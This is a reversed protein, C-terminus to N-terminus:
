PYVMLRIIRAFWIILDQRAPQTRVVPNYPTDERFKASDELELAGFVEDTSVHHFRKIKQKLAQDLLVQTGIVNTMAFVAPGKISRDVHTEAAFHVIIDVGNLAKEVAAVDCIDGQIFSYNPNDVVEKLNELNGAYTLKDFNIIKDVPHNKMWYIIFNSGIFGAGGTVLLKM